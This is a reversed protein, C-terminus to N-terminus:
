KIDHLVAMCVFLTKGNRATSQLNVPELVATVPVNPSLKTLRAEMNKEATMCFFVLSKDAKLNGDPYASFMYVKEDKYDMSQLFYVEQIPVVKNRLLTITRDPFETMSLSINKANYASSIIKEQNEMKISAMKEMDEKEMLAQRRVEIEYFHSCSFYAIFAILFCSLFGLSIPVKRKYMFYGIVSTMGIFICLIIPIIIEVGM